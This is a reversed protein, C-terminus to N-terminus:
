LIAKLIFFVNLLGMAAWLVAASGDRKWAMDAIYKSRAKIAAASAACSSVVIVLLSILLSLHPEKM